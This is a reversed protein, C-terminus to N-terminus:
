SKGQYVVGYLLEVIQQFDYADVPGRTTLLHMDVPNKGLEMPPQTYPYANVSFGNRRYFDLRRRALPTDPKEAELCLRKGVLASLEQLMRSGVGKNRCCGKVAFHEVFALEPFDWVSLFGILEQQEYYAWAQYGPKELLERHEQRSRLEDPPFSQVLISYLQDFDEKSFKQLM